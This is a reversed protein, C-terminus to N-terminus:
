LRRVREILRGLIEPRLPGARFVMTPAKTTAGMKTAAIRMKLEMRRDNEFLRKRSAEM